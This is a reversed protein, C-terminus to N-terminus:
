CAHQGARHSQASGRRLPRAPPTAPTGRCGHLRGAPPWPRCLGPIEGCDRWRYSSKTAVNASLWAQRGARLSWSSTCAHRRNGHVSGSRGRRAAGRPTSRRALRPRTGAAGRATTVRPTPRTAPLDVQSTDAPNSIQRALQARAGSLGEAPRRLSEHGRAPRRGHACGRLHPLADRHWPAPPLRCDRSGAGTRRVDRLDRRRDDDGHRLDRAAPRRDRERRTATM